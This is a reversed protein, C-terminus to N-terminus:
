STIDRRIHDCGKPRTYKGDSKKVIEPASSWHPALRQISGQEAMKRAEHAVQLMKHKIPAVEQVDIAHETLNTMDPLETPPRLIPDVIAM